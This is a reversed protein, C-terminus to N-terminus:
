FHTVRVTGSVRRMIWLRVRALNVLLRSMSVLRDNEWRKAKHTFSAPSALPLSGARCSPEYGCTGTTPIDGWHAGLTQATEYEATLSLAARRGDATYESRNALAGQTGVYQGSRHRYQGDPSQSASQASEDISIPIRQQIQIEYRRIRCSRTTIDLYHESAITAECSM